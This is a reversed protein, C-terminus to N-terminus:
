ERYGDYIEIEWIDPDEQYMFIVVQGHRDIFSMLEDITDIDIFYGKRVFDRCIQGKVLRHNTGKSYWWTDDGYYAPVKKPDNNTRVDVDIYDELQAEECPRLGSRGTRTVKYKM